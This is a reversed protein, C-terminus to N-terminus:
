KDLRGIAARHFAGEDRPWTYMVRYSVGGHKIVDDVSLASRSWFIWRAEVRIGEPVDMLQNGTAPQIVAMIESTTAAGRIYVGDVYGGAGRRTLSVKVAFRDIARAVSNLIAM